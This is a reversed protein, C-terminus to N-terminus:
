GLGPPGAQRAPGPQQERPVLPMGCKPCNGPHNQEVDPHMTCTYTTTQDLEQM